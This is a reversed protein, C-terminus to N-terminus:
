RVQFVIIVNYKRCPTEPLEIDAGKVECVLIVNYKRCPTEPLEIDARKVECVLIVNYKRCPTEPLEIDSGKVKCVLIVNECFQELADAGTKEHMLCDEKMKMVIEEALVPACNQFDCTDSTNCFDEKM